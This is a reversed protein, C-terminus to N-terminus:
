TSSMLLSHNMKIPPQSFYKSHGTPLFLFLAAIISLESIM